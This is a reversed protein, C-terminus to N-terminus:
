TALALEGQPERGVKGSKATGALHHFHASGNGGKARRLEPM